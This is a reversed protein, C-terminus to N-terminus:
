VNPVILSSGALDGDSRFRRANYRMWSGSLRPDSKAPGVRLEFHLHPGSVHGSAGSAAIPQGKAVRSGTPVIFKSLHTQFLITQNVSDKHILLMVYHEGTETYTGQVVVIGKEAAIVRTGIPCGYDIGLHLDKFYVGGAFSSKKGRKPGISDIQLYGPSEMYYHAGFPQTVGYQDAVPRLLAVKAAEM